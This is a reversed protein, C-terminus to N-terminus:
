RASLRRRRALMAALEEGRLLEMVLFPVGTEPDVGADFTEVIHESEIDAAITAELKFRALMDPTAFMEPLMLKLARRRRTERHIVEYIAGMGGAKLRRVVEYRGLFTSGPALAIMRM